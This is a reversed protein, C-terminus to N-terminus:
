CASLVSAMKKVRSYLELKKEVCKQIYVLVCTTNQHEQFIEIFVERNVAFFNINM